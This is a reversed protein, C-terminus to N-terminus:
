KGKYFIGRKLAEENGVKNKEHAFEIQKTHPISTKIESVVQKNMVHDNLRDM